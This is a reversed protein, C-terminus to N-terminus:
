RADIVLTRSEGLPTSLVRHAGHNARRLEAAGAVVLAVVLPVLYYTARYMVIAALLATRDAGPSATMLLGILVLEFVGAGAPVHSLMGATQAIMYIRLFGWIGLGLGSPMFAYLVAATALWDATSLAVQASAVLPTPRAIRWRRSSLAAGRGALSWAVYGAVTLGSLVGILRVALVHGAIEIPASEGLFAWSAASFLGLTVTLTIAASVQAVQARGLGRRAYTRLRVATGTLLAVGVSQSVAHAVFATGLAARSPVRAASGGSTRLALLEIGGLLLFSVVVGALGLTVHKWGYQGLRHLLAAPTLGGLERHLAWLGGAFLAVRLAIMARQWDWKSAQHQADPSQDM